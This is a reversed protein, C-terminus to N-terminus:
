SPSKHTGEEGKLAEAGMKGGPTKHIIIEENIEM